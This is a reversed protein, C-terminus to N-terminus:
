RLVLPLIIRNVPDFVQFLAKGLDANDLYLGHVPDMQDAYPILLSAGAGKAFLPVLSNTHTNYYHWEMGPLVGQGNNVIPQWTPDSGPGTLYGSEHDTAVILLTEGWNSNAQIWDVVAEVALDFDVAEEIMRGSENEEAALDVAGGEVMLFFGDPDNDLVNLAGKTMESLTPINPTFPVDFPAANHDGARYQQLTYRVKALGFVREPTPGSMLSQFESRDQIVTWADDAVGDGDADAVPLTGDLLGNFTAPSLYAFKNQSPDPWLQANDDYYPHGAGMIVDLKGTSLMGLSITEFDNRDTAHTSFGAPTAHDFPVTTVMGTAKGLEEAREVINQIPQRNLDMGIANKYTKVGTSMATAAGASDTYGSKVYNFDSWALAPDYSGGALYTSMAYQVPFQEFVQAGAQGFRYYDSSIVQNFGAGDPVMVIINKALPKHQIGGKALAGLPSVLLAVLLLVSLLYHLSTRCRGLNREM